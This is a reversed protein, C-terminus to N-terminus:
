DVAEGGIMGQGLHKLVIRPTLITAPREVPKIAPNASAVKAASWLFLASLLMHMAMYVPPWVVVLEDPRVHYQLVQPIEPRPVAFTQGRLEAQHEGVLPYTHQPGVMVVLGVASVFIM